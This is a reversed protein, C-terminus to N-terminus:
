VVDPAGGDILPFPSETNRPNAALARAFRARARHLRVSVNAVSCGVVGAIDRRDLGEWAHLLLTERDRESLASLAAAVAEGSADGDGLGSAAIEGTLRETLAIQRRSSRQLNLRVNRAVGFLWPRADDPVEDIRRWAVLFTEAVIDDALAPSRRYAYRRIAEFHQEHLRNFRQETTLM